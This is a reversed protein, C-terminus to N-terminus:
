HREMYTHLSIYDPHGSTYTILHGLINGFGEKDFNIIFKVMNSHDPNNKYSEVLYVIALYDFIRGIQDGQLYDANM